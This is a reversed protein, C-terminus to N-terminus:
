VLSSEFKIKLERLIEEAARVGHYHAEEFLSVGSLDSHAFHLNRWPKRLLALSEGWIADPTPRAMAHAWLMIDCRKTIKRIDSHVSELDALVMEVHHEWDNELFSKRVGKPDQTEYALYYTLVQEEKNGYRSKGSQFGSMIYGLSPSDLIINDWALPFGPSELNGELTLNAVLWPAYTLNKAATIMESPLEPVLYPLIFKPLAFIVKKAHVEWIEEEGQREVILTVGRNVSEIKKVLSQTRLHPALKEELRRVIWGNGEPWTLVTKEEHADRACFYHLLAWASTTELSTGYDDRCAYEAYWRLPKSRLDHQNLFELASIKDLSRLAPDASSLAMPIAFPRKGDTTQLNRYSSILKEWRKAEEIEVHSAGHWPNLGEHWEGNSFTREQPSMCLYMEQFTVSSGTSDLVVDLDKFLELVAKSEKTPLPVYHAGWPYVHSGHGGPLSNGGMQNELDFILFDKQGSKALKWGASLGSIGGGVIAIETEIKRVPKSLGQEKQPVRVSHGRQYSPGKLEGEASFDKSKGKSFRDIIMGTSGFVSLTGVIGALSHLMERRSLLTSSNKDPTLRM